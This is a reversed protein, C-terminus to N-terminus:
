FTFDFIEDYAIGSNCIAKITQKIRGRKAFDRILRWQDPKITNQDPRNEFIFKSIPALGKIKLILIQNFFTSFFKASYRTRSCKQFTASKQFAPFRVNAEQIKRNKVSLIQQKM